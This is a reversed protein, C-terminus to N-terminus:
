RKEKLSALASDGFRRLRAIIVKQQEDIKPGWQVDADMQERVSLWLKELELWHSILGDIIKRTDREKWEEFSAYYSAWSKVAELLITVPRNETQFGQSDVWAEFKSLMESADAKLKEEEEKADPIIAAPHAVIIFASLFVRSPNKWPASSEHSATSTKVKSLVKKFQALVAAISRIVSKSQVLKVLDDFSKETAKEVTLGSKKWLRLLQAVSAARWWRQIKLAAAEQISILETNHLLIDNLQLLKSRPILAIQRRRLESSKLRDELLRRQAAAQEQEKRLANDHVEKVKANLKVQRDKLDARKREAAALNDEIKIRGEVNESGSQRRHASMVEQVHSHRKALRSRRAEIFDRNSRDHSHFSVSSPSTPSPIGGAGAASTTNVRLRSRGQAKLREELHFPKGAPQKLSLVDIVYFGSKSIKEM